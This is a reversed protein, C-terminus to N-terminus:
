KLGIAVSAFPFKKSCSANWEVLIPSHNSVRPPLFNAQCNPMKSLWEMNILARDINSCKMNRSESRRVWTFFCGASKVDSLGIAGLCDQFPSTEKPHIPEGGIREYSKLVNHFDGLVLWSVFRYRVFDCLDNWM